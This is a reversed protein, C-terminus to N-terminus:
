RRGKRDFWELIRWVIFTPVGVAVVAFAVVIWFVILFSGLTQILESIM